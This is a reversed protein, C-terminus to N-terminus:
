HPFKMKVKFVMTETEEKNIFDTMVCNYDGGICPHAGSYFLFSHSFILLCFISSYKVSISILLIARSNQFPVFTTRVDFLNIPLSLFTQHIKLHIKNKGTCYGSSKIESSASESLTGVLGGKLDAWSKLVGDHVRVCPQAVSVIQALQLM